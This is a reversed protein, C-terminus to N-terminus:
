PTGPATVAADVAVQGAHQFTLTLPVSGDSEFPTPNELVADDGFPSLILTGHAPIALEHVVSGAGAPSTRQRLVVRRAVPSRVSILEDPRGSLNRLTLYTAATHVAADGDATYGRMPVAARTIQIQVRTVTGAAGTAVWASLLGVLVAACAAPGAASRVLDRLWNRGGAPAAGSATVTASV